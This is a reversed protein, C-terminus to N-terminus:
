IFATYEGIIEPIQASINECSKNIGYFQLVEFEPKYYDFLKILSDKRTEVMSHEYINFTFCVLHKDIKTFYLNVKKGQEEFM